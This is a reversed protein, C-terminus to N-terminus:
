PAPRFGLLLAIGSQSVPVAPSGVRAFVTVRQFWHKKTYLPLLNSLQFFLGLGRQPLVTVGVLTNETVKGAVPYNWLASDTLLKVHCCFDPTRLDLQYWLTSLHWTSKTMFSASFNQARSCSRLNWNHLIWYLFFDEFWCRSRIKYWSGWCMGSTCCRNQTIFSQVYKSIQTCACYCTQVAGHKWDWLCGSKSEGRILLNACKVFSLGVQVKIKPWVVHFCCMNIVDFVWSVFAHAQCCRVFVGM